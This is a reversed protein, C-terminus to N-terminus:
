HTRKRVLCVEPQLSQRGYTETHQLLGLTGGAALKNHVVVEPKGKRSQDLHNLRRINVLEIWTDARTYLVAALEGEGLDAALLVLAQSANRCMKQQSSQGILDVGKEEEQRACAM